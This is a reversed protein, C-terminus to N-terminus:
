EGGGVGAAAPGIVQATTVCRTRCAAVINACRLRENESLPL